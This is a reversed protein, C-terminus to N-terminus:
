RTTGRRSRPACASRSAGSRVLDHQGHVRGREQGGPPPRGVAFFRIQDVMPPIEESRTLEIPKGTNEVELAILEEARAEIADAIRFVALSRESPTTDRWEEFAAAAAEMAADVDAPGSLPAEGYQEGTAPNVM